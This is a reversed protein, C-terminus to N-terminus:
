KESYNSGTQKRDQRQSPYNNMHLHPTKGEEWNFTLHNKINQEKKCTVNSIQALRNLTREAKDAGQAVVSYCTSEVITSTTNYVFM